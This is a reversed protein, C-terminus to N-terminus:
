LPLENLRFFEAKMAEKEGMMAITKRSPCVLSENDILHGIHQNTFKSKNSQFIALMASFVNVRWNDKYRSAISWLTEKPTRELQCNLPPEVTSGTPVIEQPLNPNPNTKTVTQSNNFDTLKNSIDVQQTKAWTQGNFEYVLIYSEGIAPRLSALRVMFTNIRDAAMETETEQSLLTFKLPLNQGSGVINLRLFLPEREESEIEHLSVYTIEAYANSFFVSMQVLLLLSIRTLM